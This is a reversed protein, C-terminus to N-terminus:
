KTQIDINGSVSKARLSPEGNEIDFTGGQKRGNLLVRGFSQASVSPAPVDATIHGSVTDLSAEKTITGRLICNGSTSKLEAEGFDGGLSVSGSISKSNITEVHSESISINGSVNKLYLSDATMDQLQVKGSTTSMLANKLEYGSIIIDGAVTSININGLETDAPITIRLQWNDWDIKWNPDFETFFYLTSDKVEARSLKERNHLTYEASFTDGPEFIISPSMVDIEVNQFAEFDIKGSHSGALNEPVASVTDPQEPSFCSTALLIMALTLLLPAILKQTM